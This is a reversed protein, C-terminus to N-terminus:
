YSDLYARLGAVAAAAAGAAHAAWEEHARPGVRNAIALIAAFPVRQSAAARAVAFAELNEVSAGTARALARAATETRTIAPPCAVDVLTARSSRTLRARLRPTSEAAIPMPEPWYSMARATGLSVLTMRRAVTVQGISLGRTTPGYVGATGVLILCGPRRNALLRATGLAAEVPGVGVVAQEIRLDAGVRLARPLGKLEPRWAAVVLITV